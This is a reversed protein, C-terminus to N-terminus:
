GFITRMSNLSMLRDLAKSFEVSSRGKSATQREGLFVDTVLGLSYQTMLESINVSAKYGKEHIKSLLLGM